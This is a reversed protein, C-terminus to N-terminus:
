FQYTVLFLSRLFVARIRFLRLLNHAMRVATMRKPYQCCSDLGLVTAPTCPTFRKRDGGCKFRSLRTGAPRAAISLLEVGLRQLIMWLLVQLLRYYFAIITVKPSPLYARKIKVWSEGEDESCYIEGETNGVYLASSGDWAELTMAEFSAKLHELTDRGLDEWSNGGDRSRAIAPHASKTEMWVGPDDKAGAVFLLDKKKPHSAFPDPYGIRPIKNLIDEWTEGADRSRYFGYGSVLYMVKPDSARIVLRHVDEHFGHLEEWSSGGDVSRLLGGRNSSSTFPTLM